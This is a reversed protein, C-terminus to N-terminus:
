PNDPVLLESHDMFERLLVRNWESWNSHLWQLICARTKGEPPPQNLHIVLVGVRVGLERVNLRRRFISMPGAEVEELITDLASVMAHPTSMLHVPQPSVIVGMFIRDLSLTRPKTVRAPNAFDGEGIAPSQAVCKSIRYLEQLSQLEHESM